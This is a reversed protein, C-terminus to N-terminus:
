FGKTADILKVYEAVDGTINSSVSRYSELHKLMPYRNHLDKVVGEWKKILAIPEENTITKINYANCLFQVARQYEAGKPAQVDKFENVFKAYPSKTDILTTINYKAFSNFDISQKVLSMVNESGLKSLVDVVHKDLDIWNKRGKIYDIDAKRVGYVTGAFVGSNKLHTHLLKVDLIKGTSQFGKVPLYYFTKKKDFDEAKGAPEWVM